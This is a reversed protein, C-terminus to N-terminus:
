STTQSLLQTLQQWNYVPGDTCVYSSGLYCHGCEGIGCHMRRELALWISESSLGNQVFHNGVANMMVEPAVPLFPKPNEM